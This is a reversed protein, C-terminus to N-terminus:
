RGIFAGGSGISSSPPAPNLSEDEVDTKWTQDQALVM